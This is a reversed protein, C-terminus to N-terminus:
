LKMLIDIYSSNYNYRVFISIINSILENINNESIIDHYTGSIINEIFNDLLLTENDSFITPELMIYSFYHTNYIIDIHNCPLCIKCILENTQYKNINYDFSHISIWDHMCEEQAELSLNSFNLIIDNNM